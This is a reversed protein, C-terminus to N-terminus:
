KRRVITCECMVPLDFSNMYEGEGNCAYCVPNPAQRPPDKIKRRKPHPIPQPGGTVVRLGDTLEDDGPLALVSAVAKDVDQQSVLSEQVRGVIVDHGARAALETCYRDGFDGFEESFDDDAFVM